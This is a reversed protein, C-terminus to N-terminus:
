LSPPGRGLVEGPNRSLIQCSVDNSTNFLPIFHCTGNISEVLEADKGLQFDCIFCGKPSSVTPQKAFAFQDVNPHTHLLKEAQIFLFM